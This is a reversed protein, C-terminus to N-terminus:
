VKHEPRWGERVRKLLLEHNWIAAIPLHREEDTLTRRVTEVNDEDQVIWTEIKGGSRIGARRLRAPLEPSPMSGIVRVMGRSVAASFPYFLLM